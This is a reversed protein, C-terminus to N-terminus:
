PKRRRGRGPLNAQWKDITEVMWGRVSHAGLGTLADPEPLMGKESYGRITNISLGLHAAFDSLSLYQKTKEM